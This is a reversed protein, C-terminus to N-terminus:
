WCWWETLDEGGKTSRMCEKEGEEKDEEEGRSKM